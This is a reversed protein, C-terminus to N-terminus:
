EWWNYLIESFTVSHSGSGQTWSVESYIKIEEIKGTLDTIPSDAWIKRVFGSEEGATNIGYSENIFYLKCLSPHASCVVFDNSISSDFGCENGLYCGSIENKFSSWDNSTSSTYLVYNDRVNRVYEIGEQAL